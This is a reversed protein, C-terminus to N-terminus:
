MLEATWQFMWVVKLREDMIGVQLVSRIWNLPIDEVEM